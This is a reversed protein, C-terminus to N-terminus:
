INLFVSVYRTLHVAHNFAIRHQISQIGLQRCEDKDMELLVLQTKQQQPMSKTTVGSGTLGLAKRRRKVTTDSYIVM